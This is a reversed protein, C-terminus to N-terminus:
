HGAHGLQAFGWEILKWAAAGVFVAGGVTWVARDIKHEIRGVRAALKSHKRHLYMTFAHLVESGGGSQIQAVFVGTDGGSDEDDEADLFDHMSPLKIKEEAHPPDTDLRPDRKRSSM